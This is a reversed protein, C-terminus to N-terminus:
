RMFKAHGPHPASFMRKIKEATEDSYYGTMYGLDYRIAARIKEESATDGADRYAQVRKKMFREVDEPTECECAEKFIEGYTPM